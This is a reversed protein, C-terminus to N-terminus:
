YNIVIKEKSIHVHRPNGSIEVATGDIVFTHSFHGNGAFASHAPTGAAEAMKKRGSKKPRPTSGDSESKPKRGRKAAIVVGEDRLRKKYNNISSVSIDFKEALEAPNAGQQLSEKLQDLQEPSLTKTAM